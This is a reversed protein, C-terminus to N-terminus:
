GDSARRAPETVLARMLLLTTLVSLLTGLGLAAALALWYGAFEDAIFFVGVVGPMILLVLVGILAQSAGAVGEGIRGRVMLALTLLTMGIVGGSVPLSLLRQLAEGALYFLVLVLFGRLVVM